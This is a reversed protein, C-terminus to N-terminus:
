ANKKERAKLMADAQRYAAKAIESETDLNADYNANAYLGQLVACAFQDRLEDDRIAVDKDSHSALALNNLEVARRNNETVLALLEKFEKVEEVLGEIKALADRCLKSVDGIYYREASKLRDILIENNM